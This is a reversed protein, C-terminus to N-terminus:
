LGDAAAMPQVEVIGDVHSIMVVFPSPQVEVFVIKELHEQEFTELCSETPLAHQHLALRKTFSVVTKVNVLNRVVIFDLYIFQQRVRSEDAMAELNLGADAIGAHEEGNFCLETGKGFIKLGKGVMADEALGTEGSRRKGIGQRLIQLLSAHAEDTGDGDIRIQLGDANDIRM